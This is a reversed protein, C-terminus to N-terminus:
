EPDRLPIKRCIRHFDLRNLVRERSLDPTVGLVASIPGMTEM